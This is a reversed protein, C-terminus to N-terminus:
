FKVMAEILTLKSKFINLMSASLVFGNVRTSMASFLPASGTRKPVDLKRTFGEEHVLSITTGCATEKAM